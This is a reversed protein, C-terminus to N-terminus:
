LFVDLITASSAAGWIQRTVSSDDEKPRMDYDIALAAIRNRKYTLAYISGKPVVVRLRELSWRVRPANAMSYNDNNSTYRLVLNRNVSSPLTVFVYDVVGGQAFGYGCVESRVVASIGRPGPIISTRSDMVSADGQTACSSASDIRVQQSIASSIM